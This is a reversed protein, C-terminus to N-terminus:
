SFLLVGIKTNLGAKKDLWFQNCRAMEHVSSRNSRIIKPFRSPDWKRKVNFSRPEQDNNDSHTEWYTPQM